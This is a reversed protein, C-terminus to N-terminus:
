YLADTILTGSKRNASLVEEECEASLVKKEEECEASLVEEEGGVGVEFGCDPRAKSRAV